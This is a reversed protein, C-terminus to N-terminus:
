LNKLRLIKKFKFTDRVTTLNYSKTLIFICKLKRFSQNLLTYYHKGKTATPSSEELCLMHIKEWVWLARFSFDDMKDETLSWNFSTLRDSKIAPFSSSSANSTIVINEEARSPESKLYRRREFYSWYIVYTKM